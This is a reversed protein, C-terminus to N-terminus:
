FIFEMKLVDESLQFRAFAVNKGGAQVACLHEEEDAAILGGNVEATAELQLAGTFRGIALKFFQFFGFLQGLVWLGLEASILQDKGGLVAFADLQNAHAILADIHEAQATARKIMQFYSFINFNLHAITM